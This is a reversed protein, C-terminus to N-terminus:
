LSTPIMATMALRLLRFDMKGSTPRAWLTIQRSLGPSNYPTLPPRVYTPVFFRGINQVVSPPVPVPVSKAEQEKVVTASQQSQHSPLLKASALFGVLVVFGAVALAAGFQRLFGFAAQPANGIMFRLAARPQPRDGGSQNATAAGDAEKKAIWADHEKRRAPDSLVAYARNVMRMIDACKADGGNRDPHYKHSLTRFAASIVEPAANRAVM